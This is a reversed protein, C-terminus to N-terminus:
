KKPISPTSAPQAKLVNPPTDAERVSLDAYIVRYKKSNKPRYWFIPTDAKGLSVGKGAYHADAEPPLEVVFGFGRLALPSLDNMKHHDKEPVRKFFESIFAQMNLTDPFVGCAECFRRLTETLDKEAVPSVDTQINVVKYGTPPDLNFMSEDFDPNLIFETMTGKHGDMAYSCEFRIPLGTKPDGWITGTVGPDHLGPGSVRWGVARHGDIEKEGLSECKVDPKKGDLILSRIEDLPNMSARERSLGVWKDIVATKNAPDILVSVGKSKDEITIEVPRGPRQLEMRVRSGSVM